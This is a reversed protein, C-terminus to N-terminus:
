QDDGKPKPYDISIVNTEPIETRTGDDKHIVVWRGDRLVDGGVQVARAEQTRNDIDEYRVRGFTM